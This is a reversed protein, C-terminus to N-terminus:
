KSIRVPLCIPIDASIYVNIPKKPDYKSLLKEFSLLIVIKNIAAPHVTTYSNITYKYVIALFWIGKCNSPKRLIKSISTTNLIKNVM